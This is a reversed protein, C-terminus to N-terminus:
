AAITMRTVEGIDDAADLTWLRELLRDAQAVPLVGDALGRFKREVEAESMPNMYHGRHYEVAAEHTAGSRMVVTMECLM